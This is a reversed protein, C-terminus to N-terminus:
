WGAILPRQFIENYGLLIGGCGMVDWSMLGLLDGHFIVLFGM